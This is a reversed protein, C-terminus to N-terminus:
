KDSNQNRDAQPLSLAGHPAKNQKLDQMFWTYLVKLRTIYCYVKGMIDKEKLVGALIQKIRKVPINTDIKLYVNQGQHLADRFRHSVANEGGTVAKFETFEADFLADPNKTVSSEPLLFVTHGNDSAIQAMLFEKEFVKKQESNKPDRSTAVFVNKYKESWIENPFHSSLIEFSVDILNM